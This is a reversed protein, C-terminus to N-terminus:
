DLGVALQNQIQNAEDRIELTVAPREGSWDIRLLGFGLGTFVEGKRLRNPEGPFSDWAHTLGSSTIDALPYDLGSDELVSIEHIHRDGSLLVTMISSKAIQELLWSQEEPYDAWKEWRHEASLIQIGSVILHLDATSASLTAALWDRQAEGLLSPEDAKEGTAFYRNDLLIVKTRQGEPGFDYAGYLGERTWRPDGIPVELFSLALDRTVEKLEYDAGANNRGFDHDDWTGLIAFRERFAAYDPRNFQAAYRKTVWARNITYKKREGGPPAYWDAYINDGAWIWLDPSHSTIVPWLPQPLEDRSCSGFAVVELPQSFDDPFKALLNSALALCLLLSTAHRIPMTPFITLWRAPALLSTRFNVPQIAPLGQRPVSTALGLLLLLPMRGTLFESLDSM